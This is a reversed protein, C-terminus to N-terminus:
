KRDLCESESESLEEIVVVEGYVVPLYEVRLAEGEPTLWARRFFTGVQPIEVVRTEIKVNTEM